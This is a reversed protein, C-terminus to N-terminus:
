TGLTDHTNIIVRTADRLASDLSQIFGESSDSAGSVGDVHANQMVLAEQKLQPMAGTNIQISTGDKNPYVLFIVDSLKNDRIIAQVQIYGYDVYISAGTYTGDQYINKQPTIVQTETTTGQNVVALVPQISTSATNEKAPTNSIPTQTQIHKPVTTTVTIIQEAAPAQRQNTFRTNQEDVYLLYHTYAYQYLAYSGFFIIAVASVITKKIPM